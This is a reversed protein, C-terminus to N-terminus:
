FHLLECVRFGVAFAVVVLLAVFCYKDLRNHFM